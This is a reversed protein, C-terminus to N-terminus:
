IRVFDRLGMSYSQNLREKEVYSVKCTTAFIFPSQPPHTSGLSRPPLTSYFTTISKKFHKKKVWYILTQLISYLFDNYDSFRGVCVREAGESINTLIFCIKLQGRREAQQREGALVFSVRLFWETFTYQVNM